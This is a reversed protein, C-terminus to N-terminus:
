WSSSSSMRSSRTHCLLLQTWRTDHDEFSLSEWKHEGIWYWVTNWGKLGCWHTAWEPEEWNHIRRQQISLPIWLANCKNAYNVYHMTTWKVISQLFQRVCHLLSQFCLLPSPGLVLLLQHAPCCVQLTLLCERGCCHPWMGWVDQLSQYCMSVLQTTNHMLKTKTHQMKFQTSM